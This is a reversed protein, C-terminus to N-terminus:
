PKLKVNASETKTNLADSIQTQLSPTIIPRQIRSILQIEAFIACLKNDPTPCNPAGSAADYNLPNGTSGTIHYFWTNAM